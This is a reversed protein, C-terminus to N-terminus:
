QKLYFAEAAEVLKTLNEAKVSAAGVLFGGLGAVHLFPEINEPTISGGYLFSISYKKKLSQTQTELWNIVTKVHEPTSPTGTGIAWIPEYAIVFHPAKTKSDFSELAELAPTLQAGLAALTQRAEHDKKNEGICLIPTIDNSLLQTCKLAIDAETETCLARTESHGVITYTCDLFALDQASIQSTFNGHTHSSCNQAGYAIASNKFLASLPYLGIFSPFLAIKTATNQALKLLSDKCTSFQETEKLSQNMKWNAAILFPKKM